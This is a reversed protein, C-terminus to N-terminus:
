ATAPISNISNESSNMTPQVPSAVVDALHDEHGVSPGQNFINPDFSSSRSFKTDLHENTM